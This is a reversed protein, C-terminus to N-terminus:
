EKTITIEFRFIEKSHCNMCLLFKRKKANLIKHPLIISSDKCDSLPLLICEIQACSICAFGQLSLIKSVKELITSIEFDSVSCINKSVSFNIPYEDTFAEEDSVSIKINLSMAVEQKDIMVDSIEFMTSLYNRIYIVSGHTGQFNILDIYGNEKLRQIYRCATTKSLGWRKALSEYSLLPNGTGNRFYVVPGVDSGQVQGDNYITNIWMDLVADMESCKGMSVLETSISVPLFFFGTDKQCPANYDLVRNHKEWDIVSYKIVTGPGLVSFTILHRAQLMELIKMAQGITRCRFWEKFEKSRCVWEGPRVLYSFGDIRKYSNRFNAFCCLVAYYFLGSSGGIRISRDAILNKIFPRYVRCRPYDVVQKIELIYESM